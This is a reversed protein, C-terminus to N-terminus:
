KRQDAAARGADNLKLTGERASPDLYKKRDLEQVVRQLTGPDVDLRNQLTEMDAAGAPSERSLERVLKLLRDPLWSAKSRAM